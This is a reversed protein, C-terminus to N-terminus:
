NSTSTSGFGGVRKKKTEYNEEIGCVIAMPFEGYTMVVFQAIREHKQLKVAHCGLNHMVVEWELTYDLFVYIKLMVYIALKLIKIKGNDIVGALVALGRQVMSSRDKLLAYFGEPMDLTFGLKIRVTQHAPVTVETPLFVDYGASGETMRKPPKADEHVIFCRLMRLKNLRKAMENAIGSSHSPLNTPTAVPQSTIPPTIPTSQEQSQPPLSQQSPDVEM